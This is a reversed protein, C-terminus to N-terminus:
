LRRTRTAGLGDLDVLDLTGNMGQEVLSCFSAVVTTPDRHTWV